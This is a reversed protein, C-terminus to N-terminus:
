FRFIEQKAPERRRARWALLRRVALSLGTYVLLAAGASALGALTQGLWGGAEGTHLFRFWMRLRRGATYSAFPEFRIVAGTRADLTLQSRQDPRGGSSRDIAFTLPARSNTPFRLTISQWGAVQQETRAWLADLGAPRAPKGPRAAPGGGREPPPESGALRFLLNNAWPYSMVVGTLVIAGLPAAIWIGIANHWNFDRARGEMGRRFLLVARVNKWTWRRPWWLYPGSIVLVLFALNCAGTVARGAARGEGEAGLWRHWAEVRHFFARTGKSGEGLVRGTYADLFVTRDRGFSVEVPAEPAARVTVSVPVENQVRALLAEMGLRGAPLPVSRFGRDAWAIVQRQYALLVGTVSMVLVVAGAVCGAALHTWFVLKRLTM